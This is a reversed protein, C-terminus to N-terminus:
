GLRRAILHDVSLVGGGRRILFLLAAAWLAHDPWSGPYVFLQIVVTMGLLALASFRTGLGIFLLLPFFHEAYAAMHAAVTPSLLPLQYEDSFLFITSDTVKWGEVKTM